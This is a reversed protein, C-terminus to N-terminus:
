SFRSFFCFGGNYIFQERRTVLANFLIYIYDETKCQDFALAVFVHVM